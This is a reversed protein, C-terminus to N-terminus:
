AGSGAMDAGEEDAHRAPHWVGRAPRAGRRGRRRPKRASPAAPHIHRRAAPTLLHPKHITRPPRRPALPAHAPLNSNLRADTSTLLSRTPPQTKTYWKEHPKFTSSTHLYHLYQNRTSPTTSHFGQFHRDNFFIASNPRAPTGCPQALPMHM